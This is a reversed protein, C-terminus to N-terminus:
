CLAVDHRKDKKNPSSFLQFFLAEINLIFICILDVECVILMLYVLVDNFIPVHFAFDNTITM